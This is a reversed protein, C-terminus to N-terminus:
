SGSPATGGLDMRYVLRGDEVGTVTVRVPYEVGHPATVRCTQGAGAGGSLDGECRVGLVEVGEGVYREKIERELDARDVSAGAPSSCCTTLGVGLVVGLFKRM